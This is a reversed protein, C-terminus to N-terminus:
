KCLADCDNSEMAAAKAAACANTNTIVIATSVTRIQTVTCLASTIAHIATMREM